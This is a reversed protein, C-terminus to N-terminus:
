TASTTGSTAGVAAVVIVLESASTGVNRSCGRLSSRRRVRCASCVASEAGILAALAVYGVHAPIKFLALLMGFGLVARLM